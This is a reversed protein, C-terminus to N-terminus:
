FLTSDFFPDRGNWLLPELGGNYDFFQIGNVTFFKSDTVIHYLKELKQPSPMGLDLTSKNGLDRDAVRLNPGGLFHRDKITFKRVDSLTRADVKVIGLVREGFRLQDNVVINKIPISRGDELEVMTDKSFGGDMYTHIDAFEPTPPLSGKAVLGLKIIDIEDVEDWDMFTYIGIKIQKSTTNLCYAYPHAESDVRLSLPHESVRIWGKEEHHVMHKATVLIGELDFIEQQFTSLKFFATVRGGDELIDGLQIDRIEKEQGDLMQIPTNGVFCQSGHPNRWRSTVQIILILAIILYVLIVLGLILAAIFVVLFFFNWWWPLPALFWALNKLAMIILFIVLEFIVILFIWFFSFLAYIGSAGTYLAATGSAEIKAFADQLKLFINNLALTINFLITMFTEILTELANRIYAMVNRLSGMNTSLNGISNGLIGHTYTAPLLATNAVSELTSSICETLNQATYNMKGGGPPANIMGAFPLILPHCRKHPWDAKIEKINNNIYLYGLITSFVIGTFLTTLLAGGYKDLYGTKKYLKRLNSEFKSESHTAASM